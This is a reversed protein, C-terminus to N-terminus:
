EFNNKQIHSSNLRYRAYTLSLTSAVCCLLGTLLLHSTSVVFLAAFFYPNIALSMATIGMLLLLLSAATLHHNKM